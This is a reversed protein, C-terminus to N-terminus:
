DVSGEGEAAVLSLSDHAPLGRLLGALLELGQGVLALGATHGRPVHDLTQRYWHVERLTLAVPGTEGLEETRYGGAEKHVRCRRVATFTTGVPIDREGNRGVVLGDPSISEVQFELV